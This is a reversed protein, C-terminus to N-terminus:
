SVAVHEDNDDEVAILEDRNRLMMRPAYTATEGIDITREGVMISMPHTAYLAGRGDAPLIALFDRIRGPKVTVNLQDEALRHRRGAVIDAGMIAARVADPEPDVPIPLLTGAHRQLGELARVYRVLQPDFQQQKAKLQTASTRGLRIPGMDLTIVDDAAALDFLEM